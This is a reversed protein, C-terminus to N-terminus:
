RQLLPLYFEQVGDPDGPPTVGPAILLAPAGPDLLGGSRVPADPAISISVTCDFCIGLLWPIPTQFIATEETILTGM